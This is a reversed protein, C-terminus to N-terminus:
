IRRSCGDVGVYLDDPSLNYAARLAELGTELDQRALLFAVASFSTSIALVEVGAATVATYALSAAGPKERFHPGYVALVVVNPRSHVEELALGPRESGTLALARDLDATGVCVALHHRGDSSVTEVVFQVNVGERHFRELIRGTFPGPDPGSRFAIMGLNPFQMIGSARLQRDIM